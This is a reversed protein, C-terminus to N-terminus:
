RFLHPRDHRQKRRKLICPRKRRFRTGIRGSQDFGQNLELGREHFARVRGDCLKQGVRQRHSEAIPRRGADSSKM